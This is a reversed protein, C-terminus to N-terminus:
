RADRHGAPRAISSNAQVENVRAFRRLVDVNFREVAAKSVFIEVLVLKARKGVRPQDDFVPPVVVVMKSRVFREAIASGLLENALQLGDM